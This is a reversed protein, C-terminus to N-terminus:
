NTPSPVSCAARGSAWQGRRHGSPRQADARGAMRRRVSGGLLIRTRHAAGPRPRGRRHPRSDQQRTGRAADSPCQGFHHRLPRHGASYSPYTAQEWLQLYTDAARQGVSAQDGPLSAALREFILTGDAVVTAFLTDKDAFFHRILTVSKPRPPSPVCQRATAGGSPSPSAPLTMSPTVPAATGLGGVLRGSPHTLEM